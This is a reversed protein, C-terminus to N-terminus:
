AGTYEDAWGEKLLGPVSEKIIIERETEGSVRIEVFIHRKPLSELRESWEVACVLASDYFYEEFGLEESEQGDIRYLDFHYFPLRGDEYQHLLTFTPSTVQGSTGLGRALGGAFATKGAGLDGRLAILCGGTLGQALAAALGQTEAASRVHFVTVFAGKETRVPLFYM